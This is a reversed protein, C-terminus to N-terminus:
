NLMKLGQKAVRLNEAALEFDPDLALATECARRAENWKEMSNYAACVNNHAVASEPDKLLAFRYAELSEAYHGERHLKLGMDVYEDHTRGVPGPKLEVAKRFAAVWDEYMGYHHYSFALSYYGAHTPEETVWDRMRELVEEHRGGLFNMLVACLPTDDAKVEYVTGPVPWASLFESEYKAEVTLLVWYDWDESLRSTQVQEYGPKKKVYYAAKTQDGYYLRVRVPEDEDAQINDLIWEVAERTSNGWYDTEYRKWAGNVGGILPSFYVVENPHNRFVFSAPELMSGALLVGLAVRLIKSGKSRWTHEFALACFIALPPYVFLVHRADNYVYSGRMIMFILPFLFTFVVLAIKELDVSTKTSRTTFLFPSLLLGLPIFLPTSIALWKLTFYWPLDPRDIWRGEFLDLANFTELRSLHELAMLPTTLPNGHALPWLVSVLLYSGAGLALTVGLSRALNKRDDRSIRLLSGVIGFVFLYFILVLGAIRVNTALPIGILLPIWNRKSPRPLEEAFRMIFYVCFVYLAAFPLDVPNNMSHGIIRPSFVMLLLALIGARWGAVQKATLGTFIILLVGFLSNVFHRNEFEGFPSLYRQTVACLLDFFGGYINLAGSLDNMEGDYAFELRGESDIPHRTAADSRGLFYDLISKGHNNHLQEDETIGFDFSLVPLALAVVVSIAFFVLRPNSLFRTM